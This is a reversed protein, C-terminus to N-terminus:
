KLCGFGGNIVSLINEKSYDELNYEHINNIYVNPLKKLSFSNLVKDVPISNLAGREYFDTYFCIIPVNITTLNEILGSRLGIIGKSMSALCYAEEFTLFCSKAVGYDDSLRIVNSFVDYGQANFCDILEKWIEKKVPLNSQSEPCLFIFKNLNLGIKDAKYLVNKEATESIVPVRPSLEKNKLGLTVLIREYYHVNNLKRIDNELEIFHKYPLINYFTKGKYTEKFKIDNSRLDFIDGIFICKIEPCIMRFIDAQYKRTAIFLVKDKKTKNIYDFLMCCLYTEGSCNYNVYIDTYRDDIKDLIIDYLKYKTSKKFVCVGFLYFKETAYNVNTMIVPIGLIRFESSLQSKASKHYFLGFMFRKKITDDNSKVNYLNTARLIDSFRM